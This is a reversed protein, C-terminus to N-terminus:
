KQKEIELASHLLDIISRGSTRLFKVKDKYYRKEDLHIAFIKLQSLLELPIIIQLPRLDEYSETQKFNILKAGDFKLHEMALKLLKIVYTNTKLKQEFANSKIEFLLESTIKINTRIENRELRKEKQTQNYKNNM